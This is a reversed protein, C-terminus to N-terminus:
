PYTLTRAASAGQFPMLHLAIELAIEEREAFSLYRGSRAQLEMPAMGGGQRFWRSGVGESVGCVAAADESALGKAIKFCFRREVSSALTSGPM